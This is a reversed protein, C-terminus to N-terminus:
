RTVKRKPDLAHETCREIRNTTSSSSLSAVTVQCGCPAESTHSRGVKKLAVATSKQLLEGIPSIM